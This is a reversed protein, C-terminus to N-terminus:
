WCLSFIFYIVTAQQVFVERLVIGTRQRHLLITWFATVIGHVRCGNNHLEESIPVVALAVRTGVLM